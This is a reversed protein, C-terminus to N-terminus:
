RKKKKKEKDKKKKEKAYLGVDKLYIIYQEETLVKQFSNKMQEIWRTRVDEYHRFDQMGSSRLAQMENDMAKMDHQLISDIYFAQHPELNLKKELRIAEEMAVEEVSKPADQQQAFTTLTALFITTFLTLLRKKM